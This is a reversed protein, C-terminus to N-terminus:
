SNNSNYVSGGFFKHKFEKNFFIFIFSTITCHIILCVPTVTFLYLKNPPVIMPFLRFTVWAIFAFITYLSFQMAYRIEKNKRSLLQQQTLGSIKTNHKRVHIFITIYLLISVSFIIINLPFEIYHDIYNFSTGIYLYSYAGYYVYVICCPVFFNVLFAGFSGLFLAMMSCIITKKRDFIHSYLPFIIVIFRNLAIVPQFTMDSCWAALFLWAFFKTGTSNLGEKFYDQ